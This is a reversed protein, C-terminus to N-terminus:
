WGQVSSYICGYSTSLSVTREHKQSWTGITSFLGVQMQLQALTSQRQQSVSGSLGPPPAETRPGQQHNTAPPWGPSKEVMLTGSTFLGNLFVKVSSPKLPTASARLLLIVFITEFILLSIFSKTQFTINKLNLVIVCVHWLDAPRGASMKFNFCSACSM